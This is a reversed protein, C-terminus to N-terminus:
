PMCRTNSSIQAATTRELPTRGSTPLVPRRGSKKARYAAYALNGRSSGARHKIAEKKYPLAFHTYHTLRGKQRAAEKVRM